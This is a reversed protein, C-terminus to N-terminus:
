RTLSNGGLSAATAGTVDVGLAGGNLTLAADLTAGSAISIERGNSSQAQALELTGENVSINGTFDINANTFSQTGAGNKVLSVYHKVDFDGGYSYSGGATNFQLEYLGLSALQIGGANGQLGKLKM